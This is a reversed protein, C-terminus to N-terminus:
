RGGSARIELRQQGGVLGSSCGDGGQGWARVQRGFRDVRYGGLAPDWAFGARLPLSSGGSRAVLSVSGMNLAELRGFSAGLAPGLVQEAARANASPDEEGGLEGRRVLRGAEDVVM